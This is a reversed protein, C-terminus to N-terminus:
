AAEATNSRISDARDQSILRYAIAFNLNVFQDTELEVMLDRRLKRDEYLERIYTSM